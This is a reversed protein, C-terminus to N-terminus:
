RKCSKMEPVFADRGADFTFDVVKCRDGNLTLSLATGWDGHLRVRAVGKADFLVASLRLVCPDPDGKSISIVAAAKGRTFFWYDGLGDGRSEVPCFTKPPAELALRFGQGLELAACSRKEEFAAAALHRMVEALVAKRGFLKTELGPTLDLWQQAQELVRAMGGLFRMLYVAQPTCQPISPSVMREQDAVPTQPAPEVVAGFHGLPASITPLPATTAAAAKPAACLVLFLALTSM